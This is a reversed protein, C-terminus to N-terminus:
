RRPPNAMSQMGKWLQAYADMVSTAGKFLMAAADTAAPVPKFPKGGTWSERMEDAVSLCKALAAYPALGVKLALLLALPYSPSQVLEIPRDGAGHGLKGWLAQAAQLGSCVASEVTAITIPNNRNQGAFFLNGVEAYSTMPMGLRSGVENVFINQNATSGLFTKEWDIDSDPDGWTCGLEFQVYHQFEELMLWMAYRQAETWIRVREGAAERSLTVGLAPPFLLDVPMTDFDSAAIALVTKGGAQRTLDAVRVFTLSYKSEALAVYYDPIGGLPMKFQAYLVPIPRVDLRRTKALAPIAQAIPVKTRREELAAASTGLDIGDGSPSEQKPLSAKMFILNPLSTATVAVILNDIPEVCVDHDTLEDEPEEAIGTRTYSIESIRGHEVTIGTVTVGCFIKCDMHRLARALPRIIGDYSNTKLVWSQPSPQRFQFEAFRQFAYASTLYSDVSWINLFMTAFFGAMKESAYPRTVLFGNLTQLSQLDDRDFDQTLLDVIAYDALFMDPAPLIGALLNPIVTWISGNNVLLRYNPFEGLPLFGLAPRRELNAERSLGIDGILSWFNAYWQGFMHPYVEYIPDHLQQDPPVRQPPQQHEQRIVESRRFGALSGGVRPAREIITVKCGRQALRYAATLGSMGGGIITVNRKTDLAM